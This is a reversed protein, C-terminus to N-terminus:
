ITIEVPEINEARVEATFEERTSEIIDIQIPPDFYQSNVIREGIRDRINVIDTETLAHGKVDETALLALQLAHRYYFDQGVASAADGTEDYKFPFRIDEPM